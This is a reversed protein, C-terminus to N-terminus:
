IDTAYTSSRADSPPTTFGIQNNIVVHVTGGVKYGSLQSLNLTEAVVGQGAFAADGHILLPMVTDQYDGGPAHAEVARYHDQKARVMGEVIPNVAELHSPNSALTLEVQAGSPATYTGHAGLHYKVDGSGQTTNPDISGEFESFIQEYPKGMINALVNLRGRHAMGIVVERVEQDAADSIIADLIPIVTEAGELSFRKHGIYKTHLFREFAEASNLRQLIRRRQMPSFDDGLRTPEIREQLWRKEDPSSIHMFEVGVKRTYTERLVKHIERLPLMDAGGLGGTFFKRDLDWITLGYTAPDLEPHYIWDYGLPNIDAQLHGRVRMVRIFELVRAQKRILETTENEEEHGLHPTTDDRLSYCQYPIGLDEFIQQYFGQHGMLRKVLNALFAGSEAGQIVRHDYTSTLTMVQSIAAKSIKSPSFAEYEPPYGISGVGVIVGQGPMLRPVSLTTGIMGPNTISATTGQFDSLDLKWERARRILDNYRGLFQAFNLTETEKINPVMLTRKGRRELDIALGLNIHQPVIHQPAGNDQRYTTYLNPETKLAQVIAYAILHTFSVKDGGVYKQYENILQRNEALLKVPFTRVSTATPVTLSLEMNEAIKAAPGRLPNVEAGEPVPIVPAMPRVAEQVAGDGGPRAPAPAEAPSAVPTSIEPTAVFTENPRYDAFFDRWSESVSNSDELYQKYLEEVYGTNFGLASM